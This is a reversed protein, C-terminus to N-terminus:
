KTGFIPTQTNNKIKIDIAIQYWNPGTQRVIRSFSQEFNINQQKLKEAVKIEAKEMPNEHKTAHEFSYYHIWGGQPKVASLASDLYEHAKEPLPMLVRDATNKLTKEITTRADGEIPVVKDIVKNLLINERMYRVAVPNIDISYIKAAKSHKAIIISYSGVGAFMNVVVEGEKVLNAIRMREFGLRPSFYCEKVDVKFLCGHERYVTETKKEGAVWELKRLRFDGSVPGSQRWVAKVHKHQQMLAEAVIESLSVLKDPVRIIAIDGIVDYSKYILALEEPSLKGKLIAKLNGKM